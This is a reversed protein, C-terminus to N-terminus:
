EIVEDARAPKACLAGRPPVKKHLRNLGGAPLNFKKSWMITSCLHGDMHERFPLHKRCTESAVVCLNTAACFSARVFALAKLVQQQHDASLGRM